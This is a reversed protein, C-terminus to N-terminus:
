TGNWETSATTNMPGPLPPGKYQDVMDTQNYLYTGNYIYRSGRVERFQLAASDTVRTAWDIGSENFEFHTMQKGTPLTQIIPNILGDSGIINFTTNINAVAPDCWGASLCTAYQNAPNQNYDTVGNGLSNPASGLADMIQKSPVFEATPLTAMTITGTSTMPVLLSSMRFGMGVIRYQKVDSFDNCIGYAQTIGSGSRANNFNYVLPMTGSIHPISSYVTHLLNPNVILDWSGNEDSGLFFSTRFHQADSPFVYLDPVQAGFASEDFPSIVAHAYSTM